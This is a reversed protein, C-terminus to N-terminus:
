NGFRRFRDMWKQFFSRSSVPSDSGPTVELEPEGLTFTYSSRGNGSIQRELRFGLGDVRFGQDGSNRNASRLSQADNYWGGGRTIVKSDDKSSTWEWVNGHTDYLHYANPLLQGVAQTRDGSNKFTWAYRALEVEDDGFHFTHESGARNAFEWNLESPLRYVFGTLDSVRRAHAEAEDSNVMEVPHNPKLRYVRDGLHLVVADDGERFESPTAEVGEKGLAALFYLLQTVPVQGIAFDDGLGLSVVKKRGKNNGRLGEDGVVFRHEGLFRFEVEGTVLSNVLGPRILTEEIVKRHKRGIRSLYPELGEFLRLQEERRREEREEQRAKRELPLASLWEIETLLETEPRRERAALQSLLAQFVEPTVKEALVLEYLSAMEQLQAELSIPEGESSAALAALSPLCDHAWSLQAIALLSLLFLKKILSSLKREALKRNRRYVSSASSV